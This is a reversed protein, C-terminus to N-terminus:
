HNSLSLPDKGSKSWYQQVRFADLSRLLPLPYVGIPIIDCVCKCGVGILTISPNDPWHKMPKWFTGQCRISPWAPALTPCGCALSADGGVRALQWVRRRGVDRNCTRSQTARHLQKCVIVRGRSVSDTHWWSTLRGFRTPRLPNRNPTDGYSRAPRTSSM